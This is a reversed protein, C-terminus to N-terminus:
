HSFTGSFKNLILRDTLYDYKVVIEHSLQFHNKSFHIAMESYSQENNTFQTARKLVINVFSSLEWLLTPQEASVYLSSMSM